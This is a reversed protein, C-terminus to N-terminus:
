PQVECDKVVVGNEIDGRVHQDWWYVGKYKGFLGKGDRFDKFHGRAIHVPLLASNVAKPKPQDEGTYHAIELPVVALTKYTVLPVGKKKERKKSLRVPPVNDILKINKANMLALAFLLVYVTPEVWVQRLLFESDPFVHLFRECASGEGCRYRWDLIMGKENLALFCKFESWITTVGLTSKRADGLTSVDIHVIWRALASDKFNSGFRKIAQDSSEVEFRRVFGGWERALHYEAFNTQRTEIFCSDFPPVVSPLSSLWDKPQWEDELSEVYKDRREILANVSINDACIVPISFADSDEIRWDQSLTLLLRDYMRSMGDGGSVGCTAAVM